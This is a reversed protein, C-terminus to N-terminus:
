GSLRRNMGYWHDGAPEHHLRAEPHGAQRLRSVSYHVMKESGCVYVHRDRWDGESLAVDVLRSVGAPGAAYRVTLGPCSAAVKSVGAGDYFEAASGAAVYLHVRRRDEAAVLQEVVAKLPAWGTGGALLLLDEGVGTLTLRDGVPGCLHVEDGTSTGYVLRSSVTGGAVARVHLELTGDARPANAPSFYRWVRTDAHSLGISQGPVFPLLYSPRVTVVAVDFGFREHDVVRGVWWPPSVNEASRAGDVMAQAVLRYAAAWDAALEGGWWPGSFHRLTALLAEGVMPYHEPRVGFRRHDAGLDRLFGVLEDVRDVNSVVHGLATVLRDRQASMDTPFMQRLDPNTLFLTSYFYLPVQEGYGTVASWNRKLREVDV